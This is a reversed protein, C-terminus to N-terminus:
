SKELVDRVQVLVEDIKSQPINKTQYDIVFKGDEAKINIDAMVDIFIIKKNGKLNYGDTIPTVKLDYKQIEPAFSTKIDELSKLLDEKTRGPKDITIM